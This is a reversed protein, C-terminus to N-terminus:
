FIVRLSFEIQRSTSVTSTIQGASSTPTEAVDTLTGAFVAESPESFNPHNFINFFEARFQVDGGEGLIHPKTDKQIAFDLESFGPGILSDRGVNGLTGVPQLVFACPDFFLSPTGLPTGAPITGCGTSTGHTANYPNRGSVWDPRDVPPNAAGALVGTRARETTEWPNFPFGDHATYIGMIGWGNAMAKLVPQEIGFPPLTYIFNFVWTNIANFCSQSRDFRFNYPDSGVATSATCDSVEGQADDISKAWTYASQFELGKSVRKTVNLEL